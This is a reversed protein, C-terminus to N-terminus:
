HKETTETSVVYTRSEVPYDWHGPAFEYGASTHFWRAPSWIMGEAAPRDWRGPTWVYEGKEYAWSGPIWVRDAGPSAPRSEEKLAPPAAPVIVTRTTTTTETPAASAGSGGVWFGPSWEYGDSVKDWHGANWTMGPIARRWTGSVWGYNGNDADWQWYGPVWVANEAPRTEIRVTEEKPAPPATKVITTKDVINGSADMLAEHRVSISKTAKKEVAVEQPPPPAPTTQTIVTVQGSPAAPPQTVVQVDQSWAAVCAVATVFAVGLIFRTSRSNKM